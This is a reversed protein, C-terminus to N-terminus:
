IGRKFVPSVLRYREVTLQIEYLSCHPADGLEIFSPADIEKQV